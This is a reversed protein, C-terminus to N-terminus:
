KNKLDSVMILYVTKVKMIKRVHDMNKCIHDMVQGTEYDVFVILLCDAADEGKIKSESLDVYTQSDSHAGSKKSKIEVKRGDPFVGDYGRQNTKALEIGFESEAWKEAIKAAQHRTLKTM